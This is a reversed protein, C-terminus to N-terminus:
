LFVPVFVFAASQSRFLCTVQLPMHTRLVCYTCWVEYHREHKTVKAFPPCQLEGAQTGMYLWACTVAANLTRCNSRWSQTTFSTKFCPELSSLVSTEGQPCFTVDSEGWPFFIGQPQPAGAVLVAWFMCFLACPQWSINVQHFFYDIAMECEMKFM